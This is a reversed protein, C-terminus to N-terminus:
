VSTDFFHLLIDFIEIAEQLSQSAALRSKWLQRSQYRMWAVEMNLQVRISHPLLRPCIGLPKRAIKSKLDCNTRYLYLHPAFRETQRIM